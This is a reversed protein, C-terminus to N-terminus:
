NFTKKDNVERNENIYKSNVYNETYKLSWSLHDQWTLFVISINKAHFVRYHNIIM